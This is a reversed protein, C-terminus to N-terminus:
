GFFEFFKEFFGKNKRTKNILFVENKNCGEIINKSMKFIDKENKDFYRVLYNSSIVRELSIQYTKLIKELNKILNHDLCIFRM